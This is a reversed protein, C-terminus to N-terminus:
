YERDIDEATSPTGVGVGRRAPDIRGNGFQEARNICVQCSTVSLSLPSLDDPARKNPLWQGAKGDSVSLRWVCHSLDAVFLQGSQCCCVLDNPLQLGGVKLLVSFTKFKIYRCM